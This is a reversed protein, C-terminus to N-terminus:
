NFFEVEGTDLDYYAGTINLKGERIIEELVHSQNKINEVNLRVNERVANDVSDGKVDKTNLVAPFIARVLNGINGHITGGNVSAQVAGCRKHGLVVILKVGLHESAYELSGLIEGTIINGAVRTIFLDGLGCDFIIEPPVRSDSCCVFAAFPNQGSTLENRRKTDQNTHSLNNKSFRRNGAILKDIPNDFPVTDEKSLAFNM